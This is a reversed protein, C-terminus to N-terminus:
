FKGLLCVNKLKFLNTEFGSNYFFVQANIIRFLLNIDFVYINIKKKVIVTENISIVANLKSIIYLM